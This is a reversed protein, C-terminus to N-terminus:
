GRQRRAKLAFAATEPPEPDLMDDEWIHLVGLPPSLRARLKELAAAEIRGREAAFIAPLDTSRRPRTGSIALLALRSIACRVESGDETTLMFM